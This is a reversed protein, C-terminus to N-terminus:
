YGKAKLKFLTLLAEDFNMEKVVTSGQSEVRVTSLGKTNPSSIKMSSQIAISKGALEQQSLQIGGQASQKLSGLM